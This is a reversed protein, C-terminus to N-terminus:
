EEAETLATYTVTGELIHNKSNTARMDCCHTAGTPITIYVPSPYTANNLRIYGSQRGLYSSSSPENSSYFCIEYTRLGAGTTEDVRIQEFDSVDFMNSISMASNATPVGQANIYYGDTYTFNSPAFPSVPQHTVTVTFTTTKGGYTVAITSTGTALTGSLTYTTVTTTSSDDWHATVVLDSKLDNLSDTDYVTGSQTYVASISSLNAPPYLATQLTEYYSQGQDNIWAVYGFCQLLAQKIDETLGTGSGGSGIAAIVESHLKELKVTSDALKENTITGDGIGQSNYVGGSTWASGSYYYWNGATYGSESGTYVYVKTTDVMASVTNAALPAGALAQLTSINSRATDDVIEYTTGDITLTKMQQNPM